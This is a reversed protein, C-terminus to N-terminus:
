GKLGGVYFYGDSTATFGAALLARGFQADHARGGDIEKIELTRRAFGDVLQKLAAVVVKEIEPRAEEDAPLFTQLGYGTRSLYAVLRGDHIIVRASAARQPRAASEPWPLISGYPNAPDTAALVLAAPADRSERLIRLRDDAGPEAFQTAALGEIFYGRRLKGAQELEKLVPYIESFSAFPEHAVAESPLVGYRDLLTQAMAM